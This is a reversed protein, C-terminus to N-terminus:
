RWSDSAIESDISSYARMQITTKKHKGNRGKIKPKCNTKKMQIDFDKVMNSQVMNRENSKVGGSMQVHGTERM